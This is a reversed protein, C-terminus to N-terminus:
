LRVAEERQNVDAGRHDGGGQQVVGADDTGGDGGLLGGAIRARDLDVGGGRGTGRASGSEGLPFARRTARVMAVLLGTSRSASSSNRRGRCRAMRIVVRLSPRGWDEGFVHPTSASPRMTM